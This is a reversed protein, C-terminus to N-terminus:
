GRRNSWAIRRGRLYGVTALLRHKAAFRSQQDRSCQAPLMRLGNLVLNRLEGLPYGAVSPRYANHLMGYSVSNRYERNLTWELSCREAPVYHWVKADPVYVPRIGAKRLKFQIETEQGVAKTTAGPGMSEAFFGVAELDTKFAAWNAGLFLPPKGNCDEPAYSWGRASGPLYSKLWQPPEAEYDVEVPGGFFCGRAHNSAAESYAVLINRDFRVDDDTFVM